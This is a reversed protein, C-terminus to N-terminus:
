RRRSRQAPVKNLFDAVFLRRASKEADRALADQKLKMPEILQAIDDKTMEEPAEDESRYRAYIM